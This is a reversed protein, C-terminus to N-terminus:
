SFCLCRLNAASGESQELACRADCPVTDGTKFGNMSLDQRAKLKMYWLTGNVHMGQTAQKRM